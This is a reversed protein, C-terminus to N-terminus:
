EDSVEMLHGEEILEKIHDYFDRSSIYPFCLHWLCKEKKSFKDVNGLIAAKEIGFRVADETNIVHYNYYDATRIVVM